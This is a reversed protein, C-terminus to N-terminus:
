IPIYTPPPSSGMTNTYQNPTPTLSQAYRGASPLIEPLRNGKITASVGEERARTSALEPGGGEINLLRSYM